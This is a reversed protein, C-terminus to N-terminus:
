PLTGQPRSIVSKSSGLFRLNRKVQDRLHIGVHSSNVRWGASPNTCNRRPNVVKMRLLQRCNRLFTAREFGVGEAHHSPRWRAKISLGVRVSVDPTRTNSGPLGARSDRRPTRPSNCEGATMRGTKPGAALVAFGRPRELSHARERDRMLM